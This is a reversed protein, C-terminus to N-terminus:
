RQLPILRVGQILVFQTFQHMVLLLRESRLLLFLFQFAFSELVLHTNSPSPPTSAHSHKNRQQEYFFEIKVDTEVAIEPKLAKLRFNKCILKKGATKTALFSKLM